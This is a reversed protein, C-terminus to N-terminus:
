GSDGDFGDFLSIGGRRGAVQAGRIKYGNNSLFVRIIVCIDFYREGHRLESM